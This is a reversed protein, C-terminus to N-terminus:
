RIRLGATLCTQWRDFGALGATLAAELDSRSSAPFPMSESLIRDVRVELDPTTMLRVGATLAVHPGLSVAVTAGLNAGAQWQEEFAMRVLAERDFLTSHGGLQFEHFGVPEFTGSTRSLLVGGTLSLDAAEWDIRVLGNAAVSWTTLWGDTSPWDFSRSFRVAREVYDPPPRSLYDLELAYPTNPSDFRRSDRRLIMQLGAHRTALWSLSGEFGVRRSGDLTLTQGARGGTATGAVLGPRYETMFAGGVPVLPLTISATVEVPGQATAPAAMALVALGM